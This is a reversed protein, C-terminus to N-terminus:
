SLKEMERGERDRGGIGTTNLKTVCFICKIQYVSAIKSMVYMFELLAIM